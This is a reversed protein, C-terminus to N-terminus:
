PTYETRGRMEESTVDNSLVELKRIISGIGMGICFVVGCHDPHEQMIRLFDSDSTILVKGHQQCYEWQEADTSSLKHETLSDSVDLGRLRAARSTKPSLSEDLHFRIAERMESAEPM